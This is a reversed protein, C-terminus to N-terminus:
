GAVSSTVFYRGKWDSLVNRAEPYESLIEEAQEMADTRNRKSWSDPRTSSLTAVLRQLQISPEEEDAASHATM